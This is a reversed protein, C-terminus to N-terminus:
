EPPPFYINESRYRNQIPSSEPDLESELPSDSLLPVVSFLLLDSRAADFPFTSTSRCFELDFFWVSEPEFCASTSFLPPFFGCLLRSGGDASLSVNGELTVDSEPPVESPSELLLLELLESLEYVTTSASDM